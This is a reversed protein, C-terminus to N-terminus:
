SKRKNYNSKTDGNLRKHKSKLSNIEWNKKSDLSTAWKQSKLFFRM